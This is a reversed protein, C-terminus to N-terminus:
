ENRKGERRSELWERADAEDVAREFRLCSECRGCPASEGDYCSWVYELPINLERANNVVECKTWSATPSVVQVGNATSMELAANQRALFEESNDPFTAAEEANFGVVVVDAELSEAWAAAVAIMIGNRNPVWVSRATELAEGEVDNLGEPTPRPIPVADDMLAGGGFERFVPLFATRHQVGLHQAVLYAAAMERKNAKQGYDFTLGLVPRYEKAAVCAAVTSDLGGSLMMVATPAKQGSAM